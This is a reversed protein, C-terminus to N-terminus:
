LILLNGAMMLIYLMEGILLLKTAGIFILNTQLVSGVLAKITVFWPFKV